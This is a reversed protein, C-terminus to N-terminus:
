GECLHQSMHFCVCMHVCVFIFSDILWDIYHFHKRLYWPDIFLLLSISGTLFYLLVPQTNRAWFHFTCALSIVGCIFTHNAAVMHGVVVQRYIVVTGALWVGEEPRQSVVCMCVSLVGMMFIFYFSFFFFFQLAGFQPIYWCIETLLFHWM